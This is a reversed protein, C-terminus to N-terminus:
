HPAMANLLIVSLVVANHLISKLQSVWHFNYDTYFVYLM